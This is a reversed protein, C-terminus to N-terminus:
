LINYEGDPDSRKLETQSCTNYPHDGENKVIKLNKIIKELYRGRWWRRLGPLWKADVFCIEALELPYGHERDNRFIEFFLSIEALLHRYYSPCLSLL